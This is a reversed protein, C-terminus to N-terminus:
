KVHQSEKNSRLTLWPSWLKFDGQFASVSLILDLDRGLNGM